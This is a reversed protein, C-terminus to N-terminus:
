KRHSPQAACHLSREKRRRGRLAGRQAKTVKSRPIAQGAQSVAAGQGTLGGQCGSRLLGVKEEWRVERSITPSRLPPVEGKKEKRSPHGLSPKPAQTKPNGTGNPM